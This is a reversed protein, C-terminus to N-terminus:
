VAQAGDPAEDRSPSGLRDRVLALLEISRLRTAQDHIHATIMLEDPQNAGIFAALGRGVTDASGVFSYALAREVMAKEAPSWYADIDDIPRPVQGPTGRRLNVFSQQQSTFHRRAERETDAALANVCLMAYPRDLQASPEFGSRYMALAQVMADPAFHSAFAFPLGLRAALQASFLSSGLLWIPVELGAGPVARIRRRPAAPSFYSQLEQVDQPFEDASAELDRRLAQATLMDTGPARGLGLDIRGPYLSELTGFQEAVILPSHNPLMIGGSGVRITRTGGAVHGIVLATAASAIGPMNHHEALWYRKYGLGEAHQALALTNRLADAATAGQPIPSLDLISFPIM